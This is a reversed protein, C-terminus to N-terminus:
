LIFNPQRPFQGNGGNKRDSTAMSHLYSDSPMWPVSGNKSNAGCTRAHGSPTVNMSPCEGNNNSSNTRAKRRLGNQNAPLRDDDAMPTTTPIGSGSVFAETPAFGKVALTDRRINGTEEAEAERLFAQFAEEASKDSPPKWGVTALGSGAGAGMTMSLPLQDEQIPKPLFDASAMHNKFFEYSTQAPGDSFSRPKSTPAPTVQVNSTSFFAGQQHVFASYAKEADTLSTATSPSSAVQLSSFAKLSAAPATYPQSPSVRDGIEVPGMFALYAKNSSPSVPISKAAPKKETTTDMSRMAAQFASEMEEDVPLDSSTSTECDSEYSNDDEDDSSSKSNSDSVAGSLFVPGGRGLVNARKKGESSVVSMPRFRAQEPQPPLVLAKAAACPERITLASNAESPIGQHQLMSTRRRKFPPPTPDLSTVATAETEQKKAEM